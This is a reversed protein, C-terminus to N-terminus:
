RTIQVRKTYKEGGVNMRVFYMGAAVNNLSLEVVNAGEVTTDVTRLVEKGYIDIVVIESSAAENATFKLFFTGNNPNPYLVLDNPLAEEVQDRTGFPEKGHLVHLNYRSAGDFPTGDVASDGRVSITYKGAALSDSSWSVSKQVLSAASPNDISRATDFPVVIDHMIVVVEESAGTVNVQIYPNNEFVDISFNDIDAGDCIVGNKNVGISPLPAPVAVVDNPEFVDRAIQVETSNNDNASPPGGDLISALLTIPSTGTIDITGPVMVDTSEGPNLGGPILVPITDPSQGASGEIFTFFTIPITGVNAVEIVIPHSGACELNSPSVFGLFALDLPAPEDVVINDFAFGDFGNVSGDAGFAVRLRVSSEGALSDLTHTATVWGESGNDGNSGSWGEQSGGPEGAITGDNFWNNPDGLAGVNQWTDGGDVTSQLVAGDWSFESSWWIDFTIRPVALGSFDLCPSMVWSDENNNYNTSLGTMWSNNDSAAGMIETGAPTGLEWSSLDGGATWGGPGSAFDETYPFADVRMPTMVTLTDSDNMANGDGLAAITAILSHMGMASLDATSTFTVDMMEGVGLTDGAFVEFSMMGDVDLWLTDAAGLIVPSSGENEITVTVDEAAGFCGGPTPSVFGTVAMDVPSPDTISFDDIAIDHSFDGNDTSGRFRVQVPGSGQHATIYMGWENWNDDVHKISDLTIWPGGGSRIQIFLTNESLGGDADNSHYWFSMFPSMLGDINFCPSYLDIPNHEEGSDETYVYHGAPTGLTHDVNPGTGTSGTPGSLVDWDQDDDDTGQSWLMDLVGGDEFDEMYPFTSITTNFAIVELTDNSSVADGPMSATAILTHTGFASLDVGTAIGINLSGGPPLLDGPAFGTFLVGDIEISLPTLSTNLDITDSGVNTITMVIDESARYCGTGEPTIATVALDAPVVDAIMFDDIAIDHTFDNNDTDGRFRVQIPGNGQFSSIFMSWENWNQDVHGVTDVTTWVGGSLIQVLMENESAGGDADNSHYWFSLQPNALGDIDFCPTYVDVPFNDNGSDETYLYYGASTGLTHDVDPGTNSSPTGGADIDWDQGDDDTGQTWMTDLTGGDEFDEMYPFATVLTSTTVTVMLTDNANDADGGLNVFATINFTGGASMDIPTTFTLVTSAGAALPASFAQIVPTGGDVIYGAGYESVPAAGVNTVELMVTASADPCPVGSPALIATAALNLAPAEDIDIDDFAFGDYSNVSGDSGFAVRLLVEPEGGLGDLAHKAIVWGGSSNVGSGTWGEQSGGPNGAITNDNYWNDPDGLAGVNQWTAGGDISSQLVTGDWSFESSWWVSMELLPSSLSSFDFCPSMVWSDENNNYNTTLGTMWSNSDSAAGIIDTGAPTGLEWSSNAGGDTMWGGNGAAFDERYPFTNVMMLTTADWFLTDNTGDTDGAMFATFMLNHMGLASLDITATFDYDGIQGALLSDTNLTEAAILTGDVFIQLTVPNASFYVTATDNNLLGVTVSETSGYCGPGIPEIVDFAELDLQAFTTLFGMM